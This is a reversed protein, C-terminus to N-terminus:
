IDAQLEKPVAIAFVNHETQIFITGKVIFIKGYQQAGTKVKGLITGTEANTIYLYGNEYGTYIWKGILQISVVPSNPGDYTMLKDNNVNVSTIQSGKQFFYVGNVPEALWDGYEEYSKSETEPDNGLMFRSLIDENKDLNGDVSYLYSGQLSTHANGLRSIDEVLKYNEQNTVKGTTVDVYSLTVQYGKLPANNTNQYVADAQKRLILQGERYTVFTYLGQIRWLQKGTTPDLGFFQTRLNDVTSSVVFVGGYQGIISGAYMPITKNEWIKKGSVPNYTAVGGYENRFYLVGNHLEAFAGIEIPGKAVQVKWILKGTTAVVKVLYGDYTIFFVSNNTVIEPHAGNKYSWKVKGTAIEVAKLTGGSSYYFLGNSIPAVTDYLGMGDANGKWLPKLEPTSGVLSTNSVTLTLNAAAVVPADYFYLGAGSSLLSSILITNLIIKSNKM